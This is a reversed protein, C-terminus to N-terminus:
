ADWLAKAFVEPLSKGKFEQRGIILSWNGRSLTLAIKKGKDKLVKDLETASLNQVAKVGKEPMDAVDWSQWGDFGDYTWCNGDEDTGRFRGQFGAKLCQSQVDERSYNKARTKTIEKGTQAIITGTYFLGM